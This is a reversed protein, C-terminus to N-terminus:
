TTSFPTAETGSGRVDGLVTWKTATYCIARFKTGILGGTTTGNMSINDHTTGDGTFVTSAVAADQLSNLSGDFFETGQTFTSWKYANSTVSTNVVFDYYVGLTDASIDPMTFVIGDAKNLIFITGSESLLISRTAGTTHNVVNVRDSISGNGTSFAFNGQSPKTAGTLIRNVVLDMGALNYTRTKTPM